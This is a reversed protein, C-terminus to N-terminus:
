VKEITFDNAVDQLSGGNILSVVATPDTFKVTFVPNILDTDLNLYLKITGDSLITYTYTVGSNILDSLSLM